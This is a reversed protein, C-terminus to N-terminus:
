KKRGRGKRKGSKSATREARKAALSRAASRGIAGMKKAWDVKARRKRRRIARDIFFDPNVKAALACRQLAFRESVMRELKRTLEEELVKVARKVTAEFTQKLKGYATKNNMHWQVRCNM